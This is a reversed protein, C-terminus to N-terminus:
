AEARRRIRDALVVVAAILGALSALIFVTDYTWDLAGHKYLAPFQLVQFLSLLGAVIAGASVRGSRLLWAAVLFFVGFAAVFPWGSRDPGYEGLGILVAAGFEGLALLGTIATLAKLKSGNMNAEQHSDEHHCWSADSCNGALLPAKGIRGPLEGAPLWRGVRALGPRGDVPGCLPPSGDRM